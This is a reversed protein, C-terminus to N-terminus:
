VAPGDRLLADRAALFRYEATARDRGVVVGREVYGRRALSRRRLDPAALGVALGYGIGVVTQALADAGFFAVLGGIAAGAVALGIATLWMGHWLAWLVSVVFAPWSFGERVMVGDGDVSAGAAKMHVSYTRM